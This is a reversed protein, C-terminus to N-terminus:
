GLEWYNSGQGTWEQELHLHDGPHDRVAVVHATGGLAQVGTLRHKDTSQVAHKVGLRQGADHVVKEPADHIGADVRVLM